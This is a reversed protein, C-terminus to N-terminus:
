KATRKRNNAVMLPKWQSWLTPDRRIAAYFPMMGEVSAFTPHQDDTQFVSAFVNRIMGVDDHGKFFSNFRPVTPVVGNASGGVMLADKMNSEYLHLNSLM